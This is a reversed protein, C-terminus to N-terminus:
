QGHPADEPPTIPQWHTIAQITRYFVVGEGDEDACPEWWLGDSWLSAVLAQNTRWSPPCSEGVWVLVEVNLDPMEESCRRWTM